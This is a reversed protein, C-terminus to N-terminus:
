KKAHLIVGVTPVSEISVNQDDKLYKRLKSIFVDLSRGIFYNDDGWVNQLIESRNVIQNKYLCLIKLVAAEKKTLRRDESPGYLTQNTCNLEYRGMKCSVVESKEPQAANVRHLIAKIRCVLEEENFPKTIYDDIGLNFGKIKDESLSRATLMIIPIYKDKKRIKEAIAFGNMKPLMLDLICLDYESNMYALLGSEGDRYLKVDFGESELYDRLMFGLNLDDEILLIRVQKGM